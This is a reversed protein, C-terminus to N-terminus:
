VSRLHLMDGSCGQVAVREGKLSFSFFERRKGGVEEGRM